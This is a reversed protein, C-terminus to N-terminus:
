LSILETAILPDKNFNGRLRRASNSLRDADQNLTRKIWYVERLAIPNHYKAAVSSNDTFIKTMGKPIRKEKMIKFLYEMALEEVQQSYRCGSVVRKEEYFREGNKNIVIGIGAAIRDKKKVFSGDVYAEFKYHSYKEKLEFEEREKKLEEIKDMLEEIELNLEEIKKVYKLM